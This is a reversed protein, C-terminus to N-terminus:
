IGRNNLNPLSRSPSLQGMPQQKGPRPVPKSGGAKGGCGQLASPLVLGAADTGGAPLHKRVDMRIHGRDPVLGM